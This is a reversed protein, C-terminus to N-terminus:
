EGALGLIHDYLSAHIFFNADNRLKDMLLKVSPVLGRSKTRLLIGLLGLPKLHHKLAIDRGLVEDILIYYAQLEVALAIAEAEGPDLDQRLQSLFPQNICSIVRIWDAGEIETAGAEGAGQVVIEHFVAYPLVVESFLDPLLHLKEIRALNIVPSTDSVVRM